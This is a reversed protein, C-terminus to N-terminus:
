DAFPRPVPCWNSFGEGYRYRRLTLLDVLYGHQHLVRPLTDAAMVDAIFENMPMRNQYIQGTLIAPISMRTTPFVGMNNEFFIFGEFTRELEPFREIVEPFLDSQFGDLLIHLINEQSSFVYVENPLIGTESRKFASPNALFGLTLHGLEIALLLKAAFLTNQKHNRYFIVALAPVTLWFATEHWSRWSHAAFDLQSGDLFGYGGVSVSGQLWLAIGVGILLSNYIQFLCVPLVLAPASLVAILLIAPLVLVGLVLPYGVELEGPNGGYISFPGYIFLTFACLLSPFLSERLRGARTSASM